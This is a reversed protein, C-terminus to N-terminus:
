KVNNLIPIMRTWDGDFFTDDMADFMPINATLPAAIGEYKFTDLTTLALAFPGTVGSRNFLKLAYDAATVKRPNPNLQQGPIVLALLEKAWDRSAMSLMTLPILTTAMLIAPLAADMVDGKENYRHKIERGLGGLVTKGFGYYYSKLQWVMAFHPNSALVPRQTSDPRIIAEDAFRAIGDRVRLGEETNFEHNNAVWAHVDDRTLGIEALYREDREDFDAKNAVKKIWESAMGVAFSRTFKTFWQLGTYHFFMSTAKAGKTGVFNMEGVGIFTNEMARATVIGVTRALEHYERSVMTKHLTTFYLGLNNFEKSRTAVGTFDTLSTLTTFLLTSFVTIVMAISNATRWPKSMNEGTKGLNAMIAQDVASRQEAPVQDLEDAINKYGATYGIGRVRDGHGDQVGRKNFEVIRAVYHMYKRITVQQPVLWGHQDGPRANRLTNTAMHAWTRELAPDMGPTLRVRETARNWFEKLAHKKENPTATNPVADIIAGEPTATIPGIENKVQDFLEDITFGANNATAQRLIKNRMEGIPRGEASILFLRAARNQVTPATWTAGAALAANEEDVLRNELLREVRVIPDVTHQTVYDIFAEAKAVSTIKPDNAMLFAIFEDRNEQIKNTDLMRGFGHNARFSANVLKYNKGNIYQHMYTRYIRESLARIRKAEPTTLNQTAITEDAAENLINTVRDTEWEKPDTRDDFGLIDDVENNYRAEAELRLKHIGTGQNSQSLTGFIKAIATGGRSPRGDVLPGSSNRRERLFDDNAKFVSVFDMLRPMVAGSMLRATAARTRAVVSAPVAAAVATAMTHMSMDFLQPTERNQERAEINREIIEEMVTAFTKDKKLRGGLMKNVANYFDNFTKALRKFLSDNFNSVTKAHDYVYAMVQDSFWEEFAFDQDKATYDEPRQDMKKVFQKFAERLQKQREKGIVNKHYEQHFVIHGIEHMLVSATYADPEELIKGDFNEQERLGPNAKLAAESWRSTNTMSEPLTPNATADRLVIVYRGKGFVAAPVDKEDDRLTKIALLMSDRDAEFKGDEGAYEDIYQELHELSFVDVPRDFKFMGSAIGLMRQTLLGISGHVGVGVNDKNAAREVAHTKKNVYVMAANPPAPRGKQQRATKSSFVPRGKQEAATKSSFGPSAEYGAELVLRSLNPITGTDYEMDMAKDYLWFTAKDHATGYKDTKFSPSQYTGKTTRLVGSVKGDKGKTMKATMGTPFSLLDYGSEAGAARAAREDYMRNKASEIRAEQIEALQPDFVGQKKLEQEAREDGLGTVEEKIDDPSFVDINKYIVTNGLGALKEKENAPRTESRAAAVLADFKSRPFEKDVQALASDESLGKKRLQKERLNRDDFFKREAALGRKIAQKRAKADATNMDSTRPDAASLVDYLTYLTGSKGRMAVERSARYHVRKTAVPANQEPSSEREEPPIETLIRGESDFGIFKEQEGRLGIHFELAGTLSLAKLMTILGQKTRQSESLGEGVLGQKTQANLKVGAQALVQLGPTGPGPKGGFEPYGSLKIFKGDPTKLWFFTGKREDFRKAKKIIDRVAKREAITEGWTDADRQMIQLRGEGTKVVELDSDPNAEQLAIMKDLMSDSMIDVVNDLSEAVGEGPAISKLYDFRKMFDHDRVAPDTAAYSAGIPEGREADAEAFVRDLQTEIDTTDDETNTDDEEAMDVNMFRPTLEEVDVAESVPPILKDLLEHLKKDSREPSLLGEMFSIIRKATDSFFRSLQQAFTLGDYDVSTTSLIDTETIGYSQLAWSAFQNAFYEQPDRHENSAANDEPSPIYHQRTDNRERLINFLEVKDAPTLINAFAWYGLQHALVFVPPRGVGGVPRSENRSTYGRHLVVENSEVHYTGAAVRGDGRDLRLGYEKGIDEVVAPFVKGNAEALRGLLATAFARETPTYDKTIKSIFRSSAEASAGGRQVKSGQMRAIVEAADVAADLAQKGRADKRGPLNWSVTSLVMYAFNDLALASISGRRELAEAIDDRMRQTMIPATDAISSHDLMAILVEADARTLPVETTAAAAETIASPAQKVVAPKAGEPVTFTTNGGVDLIEGSGKIVAYMKGSLSASKIIGEVEHTEETTKDYLRQQSVHPTVPKGSSAVDLARIDQHRKEIANKAKQASANAADAKLTNAKAAEEATTATPQTKPAGKTYVRQTKKKVVEVPKSRIAKGATDEEAAEKAAAAADETDMINLISRMENRAQTIDVPPPTLTDEGAADYVVKPIAAKTATAKEAVPKSRIAERATDEEAAEKAAAAADETDMINLISLMENRAQTIDVPPPTLTDEKAVKPIAAKTATAKEAAEKAAAAADEIDMSKLISLMENRAETIDVPPPTLTDEKAVKPIAAKTATAKEAAEKAAAAADEIDMSKLISLMENRAQTIDVPPPTLTDEKAVQEAGLRSQRSELAVDAPVPNDVRYRPNNNVILDAANKAAAQGQENTLEEHVVLGKLDVVQVATSGDVPKGASFGLAHQLSVEDAGSAIVQQVLSMDASIVRGRKPIDAFYAKKGDVKFMGIGGSDTPPPGFKQEASVWMAKKGTTPDLTANLQATLTAVSEPSSVNELARDSVGTLENDVKTAVRADAVKKVIASAANVAGALLSAMNSAPPTGPAPPPAGPATPAGPAGPARTPSPRGGARAPIAAAVAGGAGGFAGGGFFAAFASQALRMQVEEDAYQPDVEKRQIILGAEQGVESATGLLGSVLATKGVKFAYDKLLSKGAVRATKELALTKLALLIAGEGGVGIAALPVGIAASQLARERTLPVGAEDFEAFSEGSMPVYESGFAGAVAGVKFAPARRIMGYLGTAVAEEATTLAGARLAARAATKAAATEASKVAQELAMVRIRKKVIDKVLQNTITGLAAEGSLKAVAAVGGTALTSAIAVLVSPTIQGVSSVAQEIFGGFSPANMFQEFNQMGETAHAGLAEQKRAAEIRRQASRDKGVITDVMAGFYEADANMGHVGSTVGAGFVEGINGPATKVYPTPRVQKVMSAILPTTDRYAAFGQMISTDRNAKPATTGSLIGDVYSTDVGTAAPAALSSKKGPLTGTPGELKTYKASWKNALDGATANEDVGNLLAQQRGVVDVAKRSPNRLLKAAGGGGQQHALYLDSGTPERGIKERLYAQNRTAVKAAGLAAKYPDFRDAETPTDYDAGFQEMIQWPGRASSKPNVVNTGFASEIHASNRLFDKPLNPYAKEAANIAADMDKASVGKSYDKKADTM